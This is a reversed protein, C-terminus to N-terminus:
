WSYDFEEEEEDIGSGSWHKGAPRIRAVPFHSVPRKCVRFEWAFIQVLAYSMSLCTKLSCEFSPLARHLNCNLQHLRDDDIFRDFEQTIRDESLKFNQVNQSLTWFVQEANLVTFFTAFDAGCSDFFQLRDRTAWFQRGPVLLPSGECFTKLADRLQERNATSNATNRIRVIVETHAVGKRFIKYEDRPMEPDCVVHFYSIVGQELSWRVITIECPATENQRSRVYALSFIHTKLDAVSEVFDLRQKDLERRWRKQRSDLKPRPPRAQRPNFSDPRRPNLDAATEKTEEFILRDHDNMNHWIQSAERNAHDLSLNFGQKRRSSRYYLVFNWYANNQKNPM